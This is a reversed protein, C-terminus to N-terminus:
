TCPVFCFTHEDEAHLSYSGLCPSIEPSSRSPEGKVASIVIRPHARPRGIASIRRLLLQPYGCRTLAGLGLTGLAITGGVLLGSSLKGM